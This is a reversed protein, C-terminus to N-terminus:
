LCEGEAKIILLETKEIFSQLIDNPIGCIAITSHLEKIFQLMDPAAACLTANAKTMGIEDMYTDTIDAESRDAGVRRVTYKRHYTTAVEWPGPTYKDM